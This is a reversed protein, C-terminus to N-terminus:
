DSWVQLAYAGRGSGIGVLLTVEDATTFCIAGDDPAAVNPSEVVSDGASDRVVLVADQVGDDTAFYVRYCKNADVRLKHEQHTDKDAQQGRFSGTALPKMKTAAACGEGARKVVEGPDKGAPRLGGGCSFLAGDTKKTAKKSGAVGPPPMSALPPLGSPPPTTAFVNAAAAEAGADASGAPGKPAGGGGGCAALGAGFSALGLGLGVALGVKAIRDSASPRRAVRAVRPVVVRARPLSPM